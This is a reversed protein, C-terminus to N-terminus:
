PRGNGALAFTQLGRRDTATRVSDFGASRLLAAFEDRSRYRAHIEGLERLLYDSLRHREAATILMVGGPALADRCQELFSRLQGDDLFEGFGTSTVVDLPRPFLSRDFADGQVLEFDDGVGLREVLARGAELSEPDLDIGVFRAAGAALAGRGRLSAAAEALDRPIGCPVSLVTVRRDREDVLAPLRRELEGRVFLYRLRFSRSSPLSLLLADFATGVVFRGSPRGRYIHDAFRWSGSNDIGERALDSTRLLAYVPLLPWKGDRILKMPISPSVRTRNYFATM